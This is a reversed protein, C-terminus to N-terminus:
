RASFGNHSNSLNSSNNQLNQSRTLTLNIKKQTLEAKLAKLEVEAQKRLKIEGTLKMKVNEVRRQLDTIEHSTKTAQLKLNNFSSPKEHPMGDEKSGELQVIIRQHLNELEIRLRNVQEELPPTKKKEEFYKKKWVDRAQNRKHQTQAQFILM